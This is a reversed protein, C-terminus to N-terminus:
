RHTVWVSGVSTCRAVVFGTDLGAALDPVDSLNEVGVVVHVGALQEAELLLVEPGAGRKLHAVGGTGCQRWSM